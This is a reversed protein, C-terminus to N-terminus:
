AGRNFPRNANLIQLFQAGVDGGATGEQALRDAERENDYGRRERYTEKGIIGAQLEQTLTAVEVTEDAPLVDPWITVVTEPPTVGAVALGRRAIHDFAEAYLLRKKETKKIARNYLVRLGFNTLDGVRDKVAQPDIM